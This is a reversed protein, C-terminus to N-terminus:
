SKPLRITFTTPNNRASITGGHTEIINKCSVLGLGTGKQKTTFLPEFIKTMESESFGPGSDEFDIIVYKSDENFRITISGEQSDIAHIANLLLNKCVIQLRYPDGYISVDQEPLNIKINKPINMTSISEKLCSQLTTVKKDVPNIRIFDVVDDVQHIIRDLNKAIIQFKEKYPSTLIGEKNKELIDVAMKMNSLPNRIDHSFRGALEGITAIKERKLMNKTIQTNKSFLVLIYFLLFSMSYGILPILYWYSEYLHHSTFITGEFNLIWQRSGFDITQSNSFTNENERSEDHMSDFFISEPEVVNDYIRLDLHEFSHDSLTNKIFDDL